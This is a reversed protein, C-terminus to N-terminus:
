EEKHEKQYIIYFIFITWLGHRDSYVITIVTVAYLLELSILTM